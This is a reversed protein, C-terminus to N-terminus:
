SSMWFLVTKSVRVAQAEPIECALNELQVVFEKLDELTM